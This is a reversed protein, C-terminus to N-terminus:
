AAIVDDQRLRALLPLLPLGLITFYDGDIHDFLQVGTSELEYCGVSRLVREGMLELYRELFEDSFNRVSMQARESTKWFVEGHRALAVASILEHTKGRLQSLHSRAEDLNGPKSFIAGDLVLVQDAGIVVADSVQGSIACAKAVALARAVDVAQTDETNALLTSRIADEDVDPTRVEFVLGAGDLLARRAASGSALVLRTEHHMARSAKLSQM